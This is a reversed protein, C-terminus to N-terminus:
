SSLVFTPTRTYTTLECDTLLRLCPRVPHQHKSPRPIHPKHEQHQKPPSTSPPYYQPPREAQVRHPRYPRPPQQPPIEPDQPLPLHPRDDSAFLKAIVGLVSSIIGMNSTFNLIFHERTTHANEGHDLRFLVSPYAPLYLLTASVCGYLLVLIEQWSCTALTCQVRRITGKVLSHGAM